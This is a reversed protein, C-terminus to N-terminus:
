TSGFLWEWGDKTPVYRLIVALLRHACEVYLNPCLGESSRVAQQLWSLPFPSLRLLAPGCAHVTSWAVLVSHFLPPRLGM